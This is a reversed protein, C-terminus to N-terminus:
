PTMACRFGLENFPATPPADIRSIVRAKGQTQAWSGGRYIRNGAAKMNERGDAPDYPYPRALSSTWESVNGAM